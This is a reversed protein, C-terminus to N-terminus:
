GGQEIEIPRGLHSREGRGALSRRCRRGPALIGTLALTRSPYRRWVVDHGGLPHRSTKRTSSLAMIISLVEVMPRNAQGTPAALRDASDM